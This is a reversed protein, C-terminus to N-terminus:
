PHPLSGCYWDCPFADKEWSRVLSVEYSGTNREPKTGKTSGNSKCCPPPAYYITILVRLLPPDLIKGLPPALEWLPHAFRNKQDFVAHFHFFKPGWPPRADRAGGKSGGSSLLLFCTVAAIVKCLYDKSMKVELHSNKLRATGMGRAYSM